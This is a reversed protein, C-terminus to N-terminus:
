KKQGAELQISTQAYLAFQLNTILRSIVIEQHCEVTNNQDCAFMEFVPNTEHEYFKSLISKEVTVSVKSHTASVCPM